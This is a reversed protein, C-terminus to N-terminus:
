GDRSRSGGPFSGGGPLRTIGSRERSSGYLLALAVGFILHDYVSGTRRIGDGRLFSALRPVARGPAISHILDALGGSPAMAYDLLGYAAGRFLTPGPLRPEVFAAYLLGDGVGELVEGALSAADSAGSEPGAISRAIRAIAAAGGGAAAARIWHARRRPRRRRKAGLLGAAAATLAAAAATGAVRAAPAQPDGADRPPAFRFRWSELGYALRYWLSARAAM